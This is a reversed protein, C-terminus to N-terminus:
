TCRDDHLFKSVQRTEKEREPIERRLLSVSSKKFIVIKYNKM